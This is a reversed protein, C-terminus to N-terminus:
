VRGHLGREIGMGLHETHGFKGFDGFFYGFNEHTMVSFYLFYVVCIFPEVNSEVM